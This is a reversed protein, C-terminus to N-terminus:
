CQPTPNKEFSLTYKHMFAVVVSYLTPSRVVGFRLGDGKMLSGSVEKVAASVQLRQNVRSFHCQSVRFGLCVIM